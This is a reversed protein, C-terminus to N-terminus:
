KRSREWGLLGLGALGSIMLPFAAPLPIAITSRSPMPPSSNVPVVPITLEDSDRSIISSEAQKGNENLQNLDLTGGPLVASVSGSFLALVFAGVLIFLKKINMLRKFVKKKILM